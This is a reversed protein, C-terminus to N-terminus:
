LVRWWPIAMVRDSLRVMQDGDYLLVGGICRREYERTFYALHRWDSGTIRRTAKVEVALVAGDHEVVFDVERNEEDRWYMVGPRRPQAAAWARLDAFVITELHVGAPETQRAVHLALAADNWYYKPRKRLRATQRVAYAPLRAVQFTVDLLELWRRLTRAVMGLERAVDAHNVPTGARLAFATMALRFDTLDAVNSLDRLDRELYTAVYSAFWEERADADLQLSPVPYGGRSALDRWDGPIADEDPFADRWSEFPSEFFRSWFGTSGFGLLERRTMPHLTIYGARGALSDAVQRMMLLNASGTLVFRGKTRQMEDDVALKAGLLLDPVRQVEDIIMRPHKRVFASVDAQAEARVLPDDLSYLAYDALRPTARVLTSKGAQRVGTVVAVPLAALLRSLGSASARPLLDSMFSM